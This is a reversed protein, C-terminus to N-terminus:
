RKSYSERYAYVRTFLSCLHPVCSRRVQFYLSSNEREAKALAGDIGGLADDVKQILERDVKVWGTGERRGEQLLRQAEQVPLRLMTTRSCGLISM